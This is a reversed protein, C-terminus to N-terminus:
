AYCRSFLREGAQGVGALPEGFLWSCRENTSRLVEAQWEGADGIYSDQVVARM